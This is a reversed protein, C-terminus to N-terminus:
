KLMIMKRTESFDPTVLQYFYVGSPHRRADWTVAHPGAQLVGSALTAVM